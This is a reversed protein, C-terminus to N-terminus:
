RSYPLYGEFNRHFASDPLKGFAKRAADLSGAGPKFHGSVNDVSFIRGGRIDVIGAGRVQPNAGGILTPHPMRQGARTGITINGADDIVYMYRGSMQKGGIKGSDTLLSNLSKATPNKIYHGNVLVGATEDAARTAPDVGFLKIKPLARVGAQIIVALAGEEFASVLLRAIKQAAPDVEEEFDIGNVLEYAIYIDKLANGVAGATLANGLLTVAWGGVNTLSAAYAGGLAVLGGTIYAYTVPDKLATELAKIDGEAVDKFYGKAIATDLAMQFKEKLLKNSLPGIQDKLHIKLKNQLAKLEAQAIALQKQLELREARIKGGTLYDLWNFSTVSLIGEKLELDEELAQIVGLQYVFSDLLDQRQKNAAEEADLENHVIIEYWPADANYVGFPRRSPNITAPDPLHDEQLEAIADRAQEAEDPVNNTENLLDGVESLDAFFDDIKDIVTNQRAEEILQYFSQLLDNFSQTKYGWEENILEGGESEYERYLWYDGNDYHEWYTGDERTGSSVPDGTPVPATQPSGFELFGPTGSYLEPDSLFGLMISVYSLPDFIPLPPLSIAFQDADSNTLTQVSTGGLAENSHNLNGQDDTNTYYIDTTTRLINGPGATEDGLGNSNAVHTVNKVQQTGTDGTQGNTTAQTQKSTKDYQNVQFDTTEGGQNFYRTMRYLTKDNTGGSSKWKGSFYSNSDIEIINRYNSQNKRIGEIVEYNLNGRKHQELFNASGSSAVFEFGDGSASMQFHNGNSSTLLETIARDTITGDIMTIDETSSSTTGGDVSMGFSGSLGNGGGFNGDVRLAYSTHDYNDRFTHRTGTETTVDNSDTTVVVSVETDAVHNRIDVFHLDIAWGSGLQNSGGFRFDNHVYEESHTVFDHTVVSSTLYEGPNNPDPVSTVTEEYVGSYSSSGHGNLDANFGNNGGGNESEEDLLWSQNTNATVRRTTTLTVNGNADESSATSLYTTTSHTDQPDDGFDESYSSHSTQFSPVPLATSSSSDDPVPTVQSANFTEYLLDHDTLENTGTSESFSETEVGMTGLFNIKLIERSGLSDSGTDTSFSSSKSIQYFSGGLPSVSGSPIFLGDGVTFSAGTSGGYEGSVAYPAIPEESQTTASGAREDLRMIIAAIDPTTQGSYQASIKIVDTTEANSFVSRDTLVEESTIQGLIVYHINDLIYESVLPNTNETDLTEETLLTGTTTTIETTTVDSSREGLSRTNEYTGQQVNTVAPHTTNILEFSSSETQSYLSASKEESGSNVVSSTTGDAYLYDDTRLSTNFSNNTIPTAGEEPTVTGSTEDYESAVHVTNKIGAVSEDVTTRDSESHQTFNSTGSEKYESWDHSTAESNSGSGDTWNEGGDVTNTVDTSSYTSVSGDNVNWSKSGTEIFTDLATMDTTIGDIDTDAFQTSIQDIDYTVSGNSEKYSTQDEQDITFTSKRDDGTSDNSVEDTTYESSGSSTEVFDYSRNTEDYDDSTNVIVSAGENYNSTDLTHYTTVRNGSSTDAYNELNSSHYILGPSSIPNIADYRQYNGKNSYNSGWNTTGADTTEILSIVTLQSGPYETNVSTTSTTSSLSHHDVGHSSSLYSSTGELHGSILQEDLIEIDRYNDSGDIDTIEISTFNSVIDPDSVDNSELITSAYTDYNSWGSSTYESHANGSTNGSRSTNSTTTEYESHSNEISDDLTYLRSTGNDNVTNVDVESYADTSYDSYGSDTYSYTTLETDLTNSGLNNFDKDGIYSFSFEDHTVDTTDIDIDNDTTITTSLVVAPTVVGNADTTEESVTIDETTTITGLINTSEVSSYHDTGNSSYNFGEFNSYEDNVADYDYDRDSSRTWQNSGYTNVFIVTTGLQAMGQAVTATSTIEEKYEDYQFLTIAHAEAILIDGGMGDDERTESASLTFSQNGYNYTSDLITETVVTTFEDEGAEEISFDADIEYHDSANETLTWTTTANGTGAATYDLNYQYNHSGSQVLDITNFGSVGIAESFSTTITYTSQLTEQYSWNGGGLDTYDRTLTSDIETTVSFSGGTGLANQYIVTDLTDVTETDDILSPSDFKTLYDAAFGEQSIYEPVKGLSPTDIGPEYRDNKFNGYIGYADVIVITVQGTGTNLASDEFTYNFTITGSAYDSPTFIVIDDGATQGVAATGGGSASTISTITTTGTRTDNNLVNLEFTTGLDEVKVFYYDDVANATTSPDSFDNNSITGTASGDAIGVRSADTAGDILEGSLSVTFTESAEILTDDIVDVYVVASTEGAAITVLYDTLATYDSSNATGDATSVLVTIDKTAAKDLTIEFGFQSHELATLDGISLQAIDNNGTITVEAQNDAITVNAGSVSVNSLNVLFIEDWEVLDDDTIPVTIQQTENASMGTFNLTGSSTTYDSQGTATQGQTAWDVSFAYGVAQDVTVTVTATGAAENVSLDAITISAAEDDEITAVGTNNLITLRDDVVGGVLINSLVLSFTEDGEFLTDNTLSVTIDISTQGATIAYPQSSIATYDSGATATGDLTSVDFTVADTAKTALSVTFTATSATEDVTVDSVSLGTTETDTITVVATDDGGFFTAWGGGANASLDSLSITFTEDEEVLLDRYLPVDIAVSTEGAPITVLYDTLTFYDAAGATDSVDGTNVLMSLDVLTSQPISVTVHAVEDGENVTVDEITVPLPTRGSDYITAYNNSQDIPLPTGTLQTLELYFIEDLEPISDGMLYVTIFQEEGANGQFNITGSAGYYDEGAVATGDVTTYSFSAGNVVTQSLVVKFLVEELPAELDYLSKIIYISPSSSDDDNLIDVVASESTLSVNQLLEERVKEDLLTDGIALDSFNIAFSEDPEVYVDNLLTITITETENANGTFTLTGADATYDIGDLADIDATVWDVTLGGTVAKDLTVVLTATSNNESFQLGSFSLTAQDDNAITGIGQAKAITGMSANEIQVTFEEDLEVIDDKNITVSVTQTQTDTGPDAAAFTLTIPTTIAVYDGGGLTTPDTLTRFDITAASTLDAGSRTVTFTMVKTGVGNGETLIVDNISFEEANASITAEGQNDSITVSKTAASANTLNVYFSEAAELIQDAQLDVTITQTEGNNGAFTLTGSDAFYDDIENATNDVTSWDVTVSEGVQGSLTVTFTATGNGENVSIDNIALSASDDDTITAVGQADSIGVSQGSSQANTLNVLFQEASEVDTDQPLTISIKIEQGATGTFNLTGSDPTYDAGQTATDNATSWDVSVGSDVTKNLSVTFEAIGAAENVTIDNISFSASDDDNITAEGQSDGLMLDPSSLSLGSLNVYFNETSESKQDNNILITIALTEVGMPTDANGFFVLTGSNALYDGDSTTATSDATTYDISFVQGIQHSVSVYFTATGADEDVTADSISITAVDDNQITGTATDDALTVKMSDSVGDIRPDTLAATFDEDSEISLDANVTVPVLVSTSGAAITVVQNAIAMFDASDATGYATNLVVTIDKDAVRDLSIEFDFGGDEAAAVDAISINAAPEDDTITAVGTSDAITLLPAATIGAYLVNSLEASFTQTLEVINDDIINVTITQTENVSGSFVLTGTMGSLRQYDNNVLATNDNISFDVTLGDQVAQDLTVTFTATGANENVSVDDISLNASDNNQITATAQTQALTVDGDAVLSSLNVLLAEDLEVVNDDAIMITITQTEGATGTFNLTGSGATYDSGAAATGDVTSWDVSVGSQVAQDLTVTITATGANENVSVDAISLSASDNDTITATAQTQALTVDGSAVLSGLNIRLTEDLEVIGDDAIMITITQTEGATGTFNLTGSGATYDSGAAATGDATSWDVSVGSQVAQDSTVTFTVTGADEDVTQNGISLTAIENDTITATAQTQALTVDGSAVLSGLNVLLTEDLEVVGDDAITITITQTEGATGTFNLTGSSATYDSGAAATGDATSWDVSVGSQVAQDLTVTFTVTGADEDVTQNGISLTASENDTITATAQSQTLTVSANNSLNTLIVLLTEDLEVISDDSLTVTITQTENDVNGAFYLTGSTSTYDSGDEATGDATAFEVSFASGIAVTSTVSFTVSNATEDVVVNSISLDTGDDNMVTATAQTQVLTVNGNAILDSLNVLFTEDLEVDSDDAITITITETEGATGTFNLAGSGATYDTGAIATNDSTAWDVSVGGQVAEDLTVTFTATGESENFSIDAISLSASDEDTITLTAQNQVLTVNGNAVLNELNVLITENLEVISDDTLTVTITQIEGMTGTFNLTGSGATYDSGAVATGDATSWDVYVGGQVAQDLSVTLTATGADEDVSLNDISLTASDNDTMTATAQSQTLTVDGAATLSSLNVLFTEDSEVVMDDNLTVTITQTEGVTGTFNLTGSDATYDSGATATGDATSWDVSVGNQVTQDLTLTFTTTGADEDVTRDSISLTASDNDTISIEGQSDAFGINRNGPVTIGTLNVFLSELGEVTTDDNITVTITQTENATGAFTLQGAALTYDSGMTATSAQASYDVTFGADVSNDLTVTLTATGDSENVSINDISLSATDNDLITSAGTGDGINVRTTNTAGNYKPDSLVVTFTEDDEVLSDDTINVTVTASTQGAVITVLQNSIPTLDGADATGYATSALVTVNQDTAHDISVTFTFTGDENVSIDNVSFLERNNIHIDSIGSVATHADMQATLPNGSTGISGAAALAATGAIIDIYTDDNDLIAGSTSDITVNGTTSIRTLSIDGDADVDIDGSGTMFSTTNNMSLTGVNSANSYNVDVAIDGSTSTIASNTSIFFNGDSVVSIDGAVSSTNVQGSAYIGQNYSAGAGATGHVSIDAADVGTGMSSITTASGLVIGINDSGAVDGQGVGAISIDGDVSTLSLAGTQVGRVISSGVGGTGDLSITAANVGTGTSHIDINDLYLGNNLIGAGDGGGQGTLSIAGDVSEISTIIALIGHQNSAGTGAIGNLTITGASVGTATSSITTGDHLYIGEKNEGYGTLLITGTGTSQITANNAEIGSFTGTATGGNNALLTIGGDVTTLSSGSNLLINKSTTLSIAGTSSSIGSSVTITQAAVTLDNAGMATANTLFTVDDDSDGTITFDAANLSDLGIVNIADAGSGSGTLLSVAAVTNVFTVAAGLTSDISSLGDSSTGTDSLTVTEAGGLFDFVRNTVDLNDALSGTSIYNILQGDISITGSTESNLTHSVTTLSGAYSGSELVVSGGDAAGDFNINGFPFPLGNSLDVTFTDDGAGGNINLEMVNTLLDSFALSAGNWVELTVGDANMQVQFDDADATGDIKVSDDDIITAVGQSDALTITGSTVLNSLNVLFTEDSEVIFDDVLSVTITQTEGASSGTFNLTGSAATYDSGATATGDATAYDVSFASGAALSSTVSFTATGADEDVTVDSISLTSDANIKEVRYAEALVYGDTQDDSITVTITGNAAIQFYGLDQWYVGDDFLDHELVQENVSMSVDGGVIGSITVPMNTAGGNPEPVWTGSVRYTGALLNSFAWSSTNQGTGGVGDVYSYDGQYFTPNGSASIWTGTQSFGADGNDIIKLYDDNVITGTAQSDVLGVILGTAQVNSLNVLFAEDSEQTTDDSINVTITQTEGASSGTFNLTGSAATYDSGATATGDATAYDVSFASGAALSSTVSFTATGADEDVTVDSISLTSDANIKEVRYAEALVYGDTQDDSITVTITGNAAIQFYGLDQWYVGDDFLDHELVQENVSMSVDGGVIGSITVPMNTAGGNPEPVWTGSVRYTGALLNSFAWSSTNQGTGGVGDVYSYDGQYFTPNGSASIWTGTQSFGADGNDIIKLYDDNVITGTAQSDVLGVILGTAQVNSLNVLFAEDSEQTTDDSINVMITQTEGASSGTFNLTGSAATYDSGATATGDATAYDVSFASGAALSSTVSFTATGADEDVTVDSISLESIKEVRYAEALM